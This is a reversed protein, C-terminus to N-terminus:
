QEQDTGVHFELGWITGGFNESIVQVSLDDQAVKICPNYKVPVLTLFTIIHVVHTSFKIGNQKCSCTMTPNQM